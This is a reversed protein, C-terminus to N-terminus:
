QPFSTISVIIGSNPLGTQSFRMMWLNKRIFFCLAKAILNSMIRIASFKHSIVFNNKYFYAYANNLVDFIM